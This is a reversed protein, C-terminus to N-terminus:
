EETDEDAPGIGRTLGILLRLFYWVAVFPRALWRLGRLLLNLWYRLRETM